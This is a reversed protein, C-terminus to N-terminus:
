VDPHRFVRGSLARNALVVLAVAGAPRQPMLDFDAALRVSQCLLKSLLSRTM